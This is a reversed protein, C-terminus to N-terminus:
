PRMSIPLRVLDVRLIDGPKIDPFAEKGKSMLGQYEDNLVNLMHGMRKKYVKRKKLHGTPTWPPQSGNPLRDPLPVSPTNTFNPLVQNNRPAAAPRVAYESSVAFSVRPVNTSASPGPRSAEDSACGAATSGISRLSLGGSREGGAACAPLVWELHILGRACSQSLAGAQLQALHRWM